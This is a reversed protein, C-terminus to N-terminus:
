TRVRARICILESWLEASLPNQPLPDRITKASVLQEHLVVRELSSCAFCVKSGVAEASLKM